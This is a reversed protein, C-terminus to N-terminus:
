RDEYTRLGPSSFGPLAGVPSPSVRPLTAVDPCCDLSEVSKGGGLPIVLLLAYDPLAQIHNPEVQYEYVRASTEGRSWNTGETVQLSQGWSTGYSDSHGTSRSKNFLAALGLGRQFGAQDTHQSSGGQQFGAARSSQGGYGQTVQSLVFRHERGIFNAAAEAELHNGLRMFGVAKGGGVFRTADDRLHEFLIVLQAHSEECVRSLHELVPLPVRDAGAVVVTQIAHEEVQRAAWQVALNVLLDSGARSRRGLMVCNLDPTGPEEGETADKEEDEGELQQAALDSDEEGDALLQATYAELMRLRLNTQQVFDGSFSSQVRAREDDTLLYSLPPDGLLERLAEHLRYATIEPEIAACITRLLRTDLVREAGRDVGGAGHVLDIVLDVLQNRDLDRSLRDATANTLTTSRVRRNALRLLHVAEEAIQSGTLDLAVVPRGPQVASTLFTTLLGCWSRLSGGMIDVRSQDEVTVPSWEATTSLREREARVHEQYADQHQQRSSAAVQRAVRDAAELRHRLRERTTVVYAAWAGVGVIFPVLAFVFHEAQLLPGGTTGWAIAVAATGGVVSWAGVMAPLDEIRATTMRDARKLAADVVVEPPEPLQWERSFQLRDRFTWGLRAITTSCLRRLVATQTRAPEMAGAATALVPGQTRRQVDIPPQEEYTM